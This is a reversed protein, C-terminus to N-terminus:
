VSTLLFLRHFLVPCVKKEVVRGQMLVVYVDFNFRLVVDPLSFPLVWEPDQWM